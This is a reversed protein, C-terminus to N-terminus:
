HNGEGRGSGRSELAVVRLDTAKWEYRYDNLDGVFVHQLLFVSPEHPSQLVNFVDPVYRTFAHTAVHSGNGPQLRADPVRTRVSGKRVHREHKDDDIGDNPGNTQLVDVGSM